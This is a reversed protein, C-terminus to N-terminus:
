MIPSFLNVYFRVMKDKLWKKDFDETKLTISSNIYGDIVNQIEKVSAGHILEITEWQGFLSRVDMNATGFYAYEGDFVGMKSHILTNPVQYVEVGYQILEKAWYKTAILATKKDPKGPIVIQVKVGSLSATKLAEYIEPTPIFYPTTIKISKRAKLIMRVWTRQIMPELTEPSDEVLTITSTADKIEKEGLYNEIELYDGTVEKWDDIFLLSHSRVAPGEIRAQYDIWMGYKKNMNAYEDAINIGGTHLIKGDIIAAKRHMRYTNYSSIFPFRIKGFKGFKIGHAELEKIEYWPLAWRGFDDVIFRIEVGEKAKQILINRLQEYIEGPKIIYYQLHIFKKANKLDKFLQTFAEDGKDFIKIKAPYIGRTTMKSQTKFLNAIYLNMQTAPENDLVEYEFTKKQKYEDFTIRYKYRQGFLMFAIHAIIPFLLFFVVWSM